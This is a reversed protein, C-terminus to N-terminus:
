HSRNSDFLRGKRRKAEIGFSGSIERTLLTKKFNRLTKLDDNCSRSPFFGKESKFNVHVFPKKRKENSIWLLSKTRMESQEPEQETKPKKSNLRATNSKLNQFKSAISALGFM